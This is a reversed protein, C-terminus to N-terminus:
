RFNLHSYHYRAHAWAPPMSVTSNAPPVHSTWRRQRQRRGISGPLEAAGTEVEVEDQKKTQYFGDVNGRSGGGRGDAGCARAVRSGLARHDQASNSATHTVVNSVDSGPSEALPEADQPLQHTDPLYVRSANRKHSPKIPCPRTPRRSTRASM